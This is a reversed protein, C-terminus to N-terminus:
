QQPAYAGRTHLDAGGGVPHIKSCIKPPVSGRGRSSVRPSGLMLNRNIKNIRDFTKQAPHPNCVRIM